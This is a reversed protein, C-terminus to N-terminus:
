YLLFSKKKFKLSTSVAGRRVADNNNTNQQMIIIIIIIIYIARQRM